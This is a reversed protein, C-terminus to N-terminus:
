SKAAVAAKPAVFCAGGGTKVAACFRGAGADDFPGVRLRVWNQEGVRVRSYLQHAGGLHPALRGLMANWAQEAEAPNKFAGVQAWTRSTPENAEAAPPAAPPAVTQAPAASRETTQTPATPTDVTKASAAPLAATQAPASPKLLVVPPNLPPSAPATVAKNARPPLADIMALTASAQENGPDLGLAEGVAARAEEERGVEILAEALKVRPQPDKPATTAAERYVAVAGAPCGDALMREGTDMLGQPASVSTAKPPSTACGAMLLLLALAGPYLKKTVSVM